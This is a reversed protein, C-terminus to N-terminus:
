RGRECHHLGGYGKHQSLELTMIKQHQNTICTGSLFVLFCAPDVRKGLVVVTERGATIRKIPKLGMALVALGQSITSSHM